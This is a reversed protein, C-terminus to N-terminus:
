RSEKLRKVREVISQNHKEDTFSPDKLDYWLTCPLESCLGCNNLKKTNIVCDYIPCSNAHVYQIWWVKGQIKNCGYCENKKFYDCKSCECGCVSVMRDM